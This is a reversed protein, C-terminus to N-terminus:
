LLQNFDRILYNLDKCNQRLTLLGQWCWDLWMQDITVSLTSHVYSQLKGLTTTDRKKESEPLVSLHNVEEEMSKLYNFLLEKFSKKQTVKSLVM